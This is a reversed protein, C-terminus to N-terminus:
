QRISILSKLLVLICCLRAKLLLLIPTLEGAPVREGRGASNYSEYSIM